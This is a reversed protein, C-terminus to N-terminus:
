PDSPTSSLNSGEMASITRAIKRQKRWIWNSHVPVKIFGKQQVVYEAGMSIAGSEYEVHLTPKYIKLKPEITVSSGSRLIKNASASFCSLAADLAADRPLSTPVRLSYNAQYWRWWIVGAFVAFFIIVITVFM